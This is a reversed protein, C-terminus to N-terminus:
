PRSSSLAAIAPTPAGFARAEASSPAARRASIICTRALAFLRSSQKFARIAMISEGLHHREAVDALSRCKTARMSLVIIKINTASAAKVAPKRL